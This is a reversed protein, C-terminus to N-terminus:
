RRIGSARPRPLRRRDHREHCRTYRGHRPRSHGCLRHTHDDGHRCHSLDRGTACVHVCPCPAAVLRHASSLICQTLHRTHCLRWVKDLFECISSGVLPVIRAEWFPKIADAYFSHQALTSQLKAAAAAAEAAHIKAAEAAPLEESSAACSALLAVWIIAVRMHLCRIFRPPPPSSPYFIHSSAM